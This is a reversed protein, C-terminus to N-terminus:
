QTQLLIITDSILHGGWLGQLCPSSLLSLMSKNPLSLLFCPNSPPLLVLLPLFGARPSCIAPKWRPRNSRVGVMSKQLLVCFAEPPEWGFAPFSPGSVQGSGGVRLQPRERSCWSGPASSTRGVASCGATAGSLGQAAGDQGDAM